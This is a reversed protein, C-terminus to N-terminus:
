IISNVPRIPLLHCLKFLHYKGFCKLGCQLYASAPSAQLMNIDVGELQHYDHLMNVAGGYGQRAAKQCWYIATLSSRPVGEGNEYAQALTYQAGLVHHHTEEPTLAILRHTLTRWFPQKELTYWPIGEFSDESQWNLNSQKHPNLYDSFAVLKDLRTCARSFEVFASPDMKKPM